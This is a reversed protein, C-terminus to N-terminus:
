RTRGHAAVDNHVNQSTHIAGKHPEQGGRAVHWLLCIQFHFALLTNSVDETERASVESGSPFLGTPRPTVPADRFDNCIDCIPAGSKEFHYVKQNKDLGIILLIHFALMVNRVYIGIQYNDFYSHVDARLVMANHPWDAM